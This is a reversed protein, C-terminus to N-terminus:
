NKLTLQINNQSHSSNHRINAVTGSTESGEPTRTKTEGKQRQAEKLAGGWRTDQLGKLQWEYDNYWLRNTYQYLTPSPFHGTIKDTLWDKLTDQSHGTYHKMNEERRVGEPPVPLGTPSPTQSIGKGGSPYARSLREGPSHARTISSARVMNCHHSKGEGPLSREQSKM